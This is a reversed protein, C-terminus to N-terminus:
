AENILQAFKNINEELINSTDKDVKSVKKVIVKEIFNMKKMIFEGGFHEKVLAGKLLEQPYSNNLETELVDGSQMGCIFLGIKKEKLKDLNKTCFESVEKQIKGIYISGGIIIKGYKSIDISTAEKLNYLDVTGTLKKSLISACKETCGYKTGYVILTNMNIGGM